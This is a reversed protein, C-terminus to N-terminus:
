DLTEDGANELESVQRTIWEEHLPQLGDPGEVLLEQAQQCWQHARDHQDLERCTEVLKELTRLADDLAEITEFTQFAREFLTQAENYQLETRALKGQQLRVTAVGHEDGMKEYLALADDFHEHARDVAERHRALCGREVYCDAALDNDENESAIEGAREVRDIAQEIVGEQRDLRALELHPRAIRHDDGIAEYAALADEFYERARDTNKRKRAVTGLATLVRGIDAENDTEEYVSYAAELEAKAHTYNGQATATRGLGARVMAVSRTDGVDELEALAEQYYERARDFEGRERTLEGLNMRTIGLAHTDGLETFTTLADTYADYARDYRGREFAVAGLNTEAYARNQRLSMEEFMEKAQQYHHIAEDYEGQMDAIVGLHTRVNAIRKRDGVAEFRELAQKQYGAAMEYEGENKAIVGLKRYGDGEMATNGIETAMERQKQATERAEEYKSQQREATGKQGLLRCLTESPTRDIEIGATAAEIAADFESQLRAHKAELLAIQQRRDTADPGVHGRLFELHESVDEYEGIALSVDVVKETLALLATDDGIAEALARGTCYQQRAREHAYLEMSQDGARQYYSLAKELIGAKQYHKALQGYHDALSESYVTEIETAVREHLAKRRSEDIAQLAQERVVGHVFQITGDRREWLGADVLEEVHDLLVATPRTSAALLLDLPVRNGVVAGLELVSLAAEDLKDRRDTVVTEVTDPLTVEAPDAPLETAVLEPGLQDALQQGIADVFLPSGGTQTQVADVFDEPLKEVGLIDELVMAVDGHELPSLELVQERGSEDAHSLVATLPHQDDIESHRYTGVFLVPRAWRGVEELLYELLDITTTDAWHVDELVLVVPQETAIERIKAAIDAFLAQRRHKVTEPDDDVGSAVDALLEQQDADLSLSTLVQRIGHYPPTVDRVCSGTAVVPPDDSDTLRTQFENVLTTKGAGVDGSIFVAHGGTRKTADYHNELEHLEDTRGVVSDGAPHDFERIRAPVRAVPSNVDIRTREDDSKTSRYFRIGMLTGDTTRHVLLTAESYEVLWRVLWLGVGSSHEFRSESGSRLVDLEHESLGGSRDQVYLTQFTEHEEAWLDVTPDGEAHIVANEVLETIASGIDPHAVVTTEDPVDVAITAEPHENRLREIVTDVEGTLNIDHLEDTEIVREILRAKESHDLLRQSTDLITDLHSQLREEDDTAMEAHGQIIMLENRINHRFVRTLVEKLLELDREREKRDGIDRLVGVAGAYRGEEDTLASIRAETLLLEGDSTVLTAEVTKAEHEGSHVMTRLTETVTQEEQASMIEDVSRDLLKEREYGTYEVMADNVQQIEGTEDLVYIPDAITQVVTRYQQQSNEGAVPQQQDVEDTLGDTILCVVGGSDLPSTTLTVPVVTGDAAELAVALSSEASLVARFEATTEVDFTTNGTESALMAGIPRGTLWAGDYGLSSQVAESAFQITCEGDLVVIGDVAADLLRQLRTLHESIEAQGQEDSRQELTIDPHWDSPRDM